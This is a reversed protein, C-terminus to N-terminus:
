SNGAAVLDEKLNQFPERTSKRFAEILGRVRSRRQILDELSVKLIPLRDELVVGYDFVTGEPPGLGFRMGLALAHRCRESASGTKIRLEPSNEILWASVEIM